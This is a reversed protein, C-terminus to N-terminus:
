PTASAQAVEKGEKQPLMHVAAAVTVSASLAALALAVEFGSGVELCGEQGLAPQPGLDSILQPIAVGGVGLLGGRLALLM